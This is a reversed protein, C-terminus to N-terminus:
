HFASVYLEWGAAKAADNRIVCTPEYGRQKLLEGRTVLLMADYAIQFVRNNKQM